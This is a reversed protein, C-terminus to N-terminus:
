SILESIFCSAIRVESYINMIVKSGKSWDNEEAEIKITIKM